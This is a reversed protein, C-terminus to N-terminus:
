SPYSLGHRDLIDADNEVAGGPADARGLMQGVRQRRDAGLAAQLGPWVADHRAQQQEPAVAGREGTQRL